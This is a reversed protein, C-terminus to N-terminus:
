KGPPLQSELNERFEDTEAVNMDEGYACVLLDNEIESM